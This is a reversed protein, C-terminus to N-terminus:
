TSRERGEVPGPSFGNKGVWAKGQEALEDAVFQAAPTGYDM